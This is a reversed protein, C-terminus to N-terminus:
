VPVENLLEPFVTGQIASVEFEESMVAAKLEEVPFPAAIVVVGSFPQGPNLVSEILKTATELGPNAAGESEALMHEGAAHLMVAVTLV